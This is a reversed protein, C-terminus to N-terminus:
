MPLQLITLIYSLCGVCLFDLSVWNQASLLGLFAFARFPWFFDFFGFPVFLKLLVLSSFPKGSSNLQCKTYYESFHSYIKMAFIETNTLIAESVIEILKFKFEISSRGIHRIFINTPNKRFQMCSKSRFTKLRPEPENLLSVKSLPDNSSGAFRHVM